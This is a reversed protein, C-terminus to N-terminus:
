SYLMKAASYFITFCMSWNSTNMFFIGYNRLLILYGTKPYKVTTKELYKVMQM